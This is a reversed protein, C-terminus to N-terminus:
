SWRTMVEGTGEKKLLSQFDDSTYQSSQGGHHILGAPRGHHRLGDAFRRCGDQGADYREDVLWRHSALLPPIQILSGHRDVAALLPQPAGDILVARREIHQHLAAAILSRDFLQHTLQELAVAVQPHDDGVCQAAVAAAFVSGPWRM